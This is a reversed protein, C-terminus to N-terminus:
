VGQGEDHEAVQKVPKLMPWSIDHVEERGDIVSEVVMVMVGVERGGEDEVGVIVHLQGCNPGPGTPQSQGTCVEGGGEVVVGVVVLSEV